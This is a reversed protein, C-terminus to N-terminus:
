SILKRKPQQSPETTAFIEKAKVADIRFERSPAHEGRVIEGMQEM